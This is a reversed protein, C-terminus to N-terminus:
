LRVRAFKLSKANADRYSMYLFGGSQKMSLEQGLNSGAVEGDM